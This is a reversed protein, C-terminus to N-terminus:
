TTYEIIFQTGTADYPIAGYTDRTGVASWELSVGAPLSVLNWTGASNGVNLVSGCLSGAPVTGVGTSSAYNHTRSAPTLNTNINLLTTGITALLANTSTILVEIAALDIVMATTDAAINSTDVKIADLVTDIATLLSNSTTILTEIAQLTVETALGGGGLDSDINQVATQIASLITEQETSLVVPSSNASLKQGLSNFKANLTTLTSGITTLITEIQDILDEQESSLVVPTSDASAKQGLSNFKASLASLTAETSFDEANFATLLNNLTINGLQVNSNILSSTAETSFDEANFATLLANLTTETSNDNTNTQIGSLSSELVRLVNHLLINNNM